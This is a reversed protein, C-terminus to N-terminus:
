DSSWVPCRGTVPFYNTDFFAKGSHCGPPVLADIIEEARQTWPLKMAGVSEKAQNLTKPGIIVSHILSNAAAWRTAVQGLTGGIEAALPRLQEAIEVSQQRWEAQLFRRDNRDLRSTSPVKGSGYKGTLVGRALPSYSAVGLGHHKTMPLLEVEIDRNVLNYPPQVALIPQWGNQNATSLMTVIEWARYNSCGIYRVKGSRCLDEVARLTEEIPTDHDPLHLYYIDIWDTQLRQLSEECARIINRASLKQANPHPKMKAWVKTALIVNERRGKLLRGCFRESEGTSYMDATDWFFIGNDLCYDAIKQSETFDTQGGFMMTGLCLPSVFLGSNGFRVPEM